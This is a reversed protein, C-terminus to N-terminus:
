RGIRTLALAVLGSRPAAFREDGGALTIREGESVERAELDIWTALYEGTTVDQLGLEGRGTLVYATPPSAIVAETGGAAIEPEDFLSTLAGFEFGVPLAPPVDIWVLTGKRRLQVSDAAFRRDSDFSGDPLAPSPHWKM